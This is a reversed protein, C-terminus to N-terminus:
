LTERRGAFGEFSENMMRRNFENLRQADEAEDKNFVMDEEQLKFQVNSSDNVRQRLMRNRPSSARNVTAYESPLASESLKRRSPYDEDSRITTGNIIGANDGDPIQLLNSSSDARFRDEWHDDQVKSKSISSEQEIQPTQRLIYDDEMSMARIMAQAGENRLFFSDRLNVEDTLLTEPAQSGVVLGQTRPIHYFVWIMVVAYLYNSLTNYMLIWVGANDVAIIYTGNICQITEKRVEEFCYKIYLWESISAFVYFFSIVLMQQVFKKYRDGQFDEETKERPDRQRDRPRKLLLIVVFVLILGAECTDFFIISRDHWGYSDAHQQCSAGLKGPLFAFIIETALYTTAFGVFM